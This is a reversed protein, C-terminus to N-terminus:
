QTETKKCDCEMRLFKLERDLYTEPREWKTTRGLLSVGIYGRVELAGDGGLKIECSYTKGNDPDYIEGEVWKGDKFQFGRIIRTGVLPRSRLGEDPNKDDLKPQGKKEGEWYNPYKLSVIKGSYVGNEEYVEILADKGETIWLGLIDSGSAGLAALPFTLSFIVGALVKKKM